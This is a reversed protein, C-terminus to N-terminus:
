ILLVVAKRTCIVDICLCTSGLVPSQIPFHLTPLIILDTYFIFDIACDTGYMACLGM